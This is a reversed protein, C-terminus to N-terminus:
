NAISGHYDRYSRRLDYAATLTIWYRLRRCFYLDDFWGEHSVIETVPEYHGITVGKSDFIPIFRTSFHTEEEYGNRTLPLEIHPNDVTEGVLNRQVMPKISDDWITALVEPAKRGMCPHLGGLLEVYPENYVMVFDRGYFGVAPRTDQMILNVSSRLEPSWDRMPGLPTDAWNISRAFAVHATIRAPSPDHTWDLTTLNANSREDSHKTRIDTKSCSDSSEPEPLSGSIVIWRQAILCRTWIYHCFTSPEGLNSISSHCWSHFTSVSAADQGFSRDIGHSGILAEKLSGQEATALAPNSYVFNIHAVSTTSDASDIVFSPRPDHELLDLLGLHALPDADFLNPKSLRQPRLSLDSHMM